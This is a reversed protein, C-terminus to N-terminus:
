YIKIYDDKYPLLPTLPSILLLLTLLAFAEILYDSVKHSFLTKLVAKSLSRIGFVGLICQLFMLEGIDLGAHIFIKLVFPIIPPHWDNYDGSVAQKYQFMSDSSMNAPYYLTWIFIIIYLYVLFFPLLKLHNLVSAKSINFPRFM